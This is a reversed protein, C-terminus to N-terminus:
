DGSRRRRHRHQWLGGTLLAAGIVVLAAVPWTSGAMRLDGVDVAAVLFVPVVVFMLARAVAALMGPELRSGSGRQRPPPPADTLYYAAARGLVQRTSRRYSVAMYPLWVLPVVTGVLFTVGLLTWRGVAGLRERATPRGDRPRPPMLGLLKAMRLTLATLAAFGRRRPLDEPPEPPGDGAGERGALAREATDEDAYVGQLVLLEAARRPATPDRGAVAALELTTRAQSLLAACFAVPIFLLFPGGVFAGEAVTRRIGRAVAEAGLAGADADPREARLRAVSRAARPGSHRLAFGALLEPMRDPRRVIARLLVEPAGEPTDPTAAM